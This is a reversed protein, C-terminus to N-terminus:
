LTQNRVIFHNYIKEVWKKFELISMSAKAYNCSTCCPVCNEETYGISNDIRDIGNYTFKPTNESWAKSIRQPESNCYYCNKQTIIFFYDASLNFEINYQYCRNTYSRFVRNFAAEKRTSRAIVSEKKLCGCSTSSGKLLSHHNVSKKVGCDCQCLWYNRRNKGKFDIHKDFNLVTLRGFKRGVLNTLQTGNERRSCGCSKSNGSRLDATSSKTIKGCDCQCIWVSKRDDTEIRELVLLKGFKQDTLDLRKGM